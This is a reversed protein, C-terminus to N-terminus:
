DKVRYSHNCCDHGKVLNKTRSFEIKSSFAEVIHYDNMCVLTDIWGPLGSEKALKVFPCDTVTFDASNDGKELSYKFGAEKLPAWLEEILDELKSGDTCKKKGIEEWEETCRIACLREVAKEGVEGFDRSISQLLEKSDVNGWGEKLRAVAKYQDSDKEFCDPLPQALWEKLWDIYKVFEDEM